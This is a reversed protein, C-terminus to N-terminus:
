VDRPYAGSSLLLVDEIYPILDDPNEQYEFVKYLRIREVGNQVWQGMLTLADRLEGSSFYADEKDNFLHYYVKTLRM